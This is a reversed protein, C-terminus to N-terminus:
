FHGLSPSVMEVLEAVIPDWEAIVLLERVVEEVNEGHVGVLEEIMERGEFGMAMVAEVVAELSSHKIGGAPHMVVSVEEVAAEEEEKEVEGVDELPSHMSLRAPVADGAPPSLTVAYSKEGGEAVVELVEGEEEVKGAGATEAREVMTDEEGVPGCVAIEGVDSCDMREESKVDMGAGATPGTEGDGGMGQDYFAVLKAVMGGAEAEVEEEEEGEEESSLATAAKLHAAPEPMTSSHPPSPETAVHPVQHIPPSCCTTNTKKRLFDEEFLPGSFDVESSLQWPPLPGCAELLALHCERGSWHLLRPHWRADEILNRWEEVAM